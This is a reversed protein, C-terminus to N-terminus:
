EPDSEQKRARFRGRDRMGTDLTEGREWAMDEWKEIRICYRGQKGDRSRDDENM